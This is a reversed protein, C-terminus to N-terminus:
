ENESKVGLEKELKKRKDKRSRIVLYISTVISIFCVLEKAFPANYSLFIVIILLVVIDIITSKNLEKELKRRKEDAKEKWFDERGQLRAKEKEGELKIDEQPSLELGQKVIKVEPKEVVTEKIVKEVVRKTKEGCYQCFEDDGEVQKGCNQCYTM